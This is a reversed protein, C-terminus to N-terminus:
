RRSAFAVCGIFFLGSVTLTFLGVWFPIEGGPYGAIVSTGLMVAGGLWVIAAAVACLGAALRRHGAPDTDQVRERQSERSEYELKM